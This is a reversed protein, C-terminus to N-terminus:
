NIFMWFISCLTLPWYKFAVYLSGWWTMLYMGKYFKRPDSMYYKDVYYVRGRLYGIWKDWYHAIKGM